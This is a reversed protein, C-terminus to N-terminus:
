SANDDPPRGDGGGGGVGNRAEEAAEKRWQRTTEVPCDLEGGLRGEEFAAETAALGPGSWDPLPGDACKDLLSPDLRPSSLPSDELARLYPWWSSDDGKERERLLALSLLKPADLPRPVPREVGDLVIEGDEERFARGRSPLHPRRPGGNPEAPPSPAARLNAVIDSWTERPFIPLPNEGTGSTPAHPALLERLSNGEEGLTRLSFTSTLPM